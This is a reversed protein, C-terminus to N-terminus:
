LFPSNPLIMLIFYPPDWIWMLQMSLTIQLIIVMVLSINWNLRRTFDELNGGWFIPITAYSLDMQLSGGLKKGWSRSLFMGFRPPIDAVVIDMVLSKAPIQSLSVVLDKIVGLCKVNKSDFSFLDHYAKTIKLGLEEMVFKPM